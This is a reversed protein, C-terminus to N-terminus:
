ILSMFKSEPRSFPRGGDIPREKISQMPFKDKLELRCYNIELMLRHLSIEM